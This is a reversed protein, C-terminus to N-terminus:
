LDSIINECFELAQLKMVASAWTLGGGFGSFCVMNERAMLNESVYTTMVAPITGSDSNGLEETLKMPVKTRPVELKDALKQLMFKNPQHFLFYDIEEKKVGHKELLEEIAPPVERQVFNFVDTGEMEVGMMPVNSRQIKIKDQTMPNRFGGDRIILAERSKGDNYFSMTIKNNIDSNELVTINAVDGGFSAHELKPENEDSKRNFIEGTCLLIKKNKMHDLLMFSELMGVVFGACAQPIDLTVMDCPLDLEGQIISSITPLFYDQCLTVVVIGGIEEKAIYDKELM